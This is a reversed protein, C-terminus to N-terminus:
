FLDATKEGVLSGIAVGMGGLRVGIALSDNIKKIIPEKSKGVGMIGAWEYEIEFSSHPLIVTKLLQLIESKIYDTTALKTTTEGIFDLNRGGGILIRNEFNRFYYYGQDYHFTGKVKLDPIPSTVLVQARAPSVDENLFERAFGNITLLSHKTSIEGINCIVTKGENQISQMEIGFLLLIGSKVVLEHLKGMMKGTDIQGELRNNFTTHIGSFGSAKAKQKDESLVNDFGTIKQLQVNLDYLNEIVEVGIKKEEKRLIDWSGLQLFDLQKDGVLSRLKQLGEWRLAVTDWVEAQPIHKLDSLLETPSGFCAFGANKTSAGSPLYSREIVLIKADKFKERLHLAATCGVIGAGIILFDIEEFYYKREWFSLQDIKLM